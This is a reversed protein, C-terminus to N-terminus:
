RRRREAVILGTILTALLGLIVLAVLRTARM